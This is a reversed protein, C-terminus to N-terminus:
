FYYLDVECLGRSDIWKASSKASTGLANLSNNASECCAKASQGNNCKLIYAESRAQKGFFSSFLGIILFLIYRRVKKVM